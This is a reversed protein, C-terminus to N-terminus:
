FIFKLTLVMTRPNSSWVQSLQGFLPQSPEAFLLQDTGTAGNPRVDNIYGGSYQPHNLVNSARASFEMATRETFNIRKAAFVDIDDIPNLENTNRGATSITGKPAQAYGASPNDVLYAVTAGGSNKLATVGSGVNFSGGNPNVLARDPASDGNLNSDVGALVTYYTGSQYTYVPAVSWNGVVNKLFWNSHKFFPVDYMLELTIRNRHDLASSSRDQRLNQSDEPRRPTTYTSFVDATSDDIAHSWTYSSNVQLGNTLRRTLQNSWGHYVSNGWPMYATIKSTFGNALYSPVVDGHSAYATQLAGLTNTFGNLTAQSPAAGWYVPLANSSNVVPQYNLQDQIDLDTGRTGVYRTEFVWGGTFEHQIGFNWQYSKPRKVNTNIYGSTSTRAEAPTFGASPGTSPLGGSALFGGAGNVIADQTTSLEPPLSLLGLNDFLVDYNIGFGARISTKGSTGPSYAVGIRPMINDTQPKPNSFTILGPVSALANLSQQNEAAPVTEFEYRLGLNVTLNSNVKWTDNGYWGLLNRNGWYIPNGASREALYDPVYDFLYDSLNTYEYDGRSRQTFAQPSIQREGDFGFKFSHAGKTLTVNDTVEYNNQYTFQPANPDPGIQLGLDNFVLNPFQDLGPFTQNGVPDQSSYRNYGLRLENIVTPSFNHYESLTVLYANAPTTTFFTPLAAAVDISGTRNLVFRGRLADKDSLNYDVSAVGFENNTYAPAAIPIQGVDLATGTPTGEQYLAGAGLSGLLVPPCTAAGACSTSAVPVYKKFINFNTQNIGPTAAIQALGAATPAFLQSPTAAQGIPEYEYDGFFFLKNHKIPGGFNGGFRNDDYRPHLPTGTVAALNDAANLNKNQFYEYAEGHFSNTGSKVITNFQGGSSHGFDPSYQNELMSFDSVAENPVTVLPGTVAGSNNDIGEITFNNNRPRQGGVSPGTGAGITGSTAVGPALLALNLVGAGTATEPLNAVEATSFTTQLQATTTDIASGIETVQVTTASQGIQLTVNTTVTENLQVVVNQVDTKSFGAATVSITYSGVPLNEFRYDGKSTSKTDSEQGTSSNHAIVSADPVAAGTTDYVTGTLNGSTLQSFLPLNFLMLASLLVGLKNKMMKRQKYREIAASM